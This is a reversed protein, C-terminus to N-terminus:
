LKFLGTKKAKNKFLFFLSVIVGLIIFFVLPSVLPIETTEIKQFFYINNDHSGVAIYEGDASTAVGWSDDQAQYAGLPTSSNRQFFYIKSDM